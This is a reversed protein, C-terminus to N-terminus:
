KNSSAAAKSPAADSTSKGSDTKTSTQDGTAKGSTESAAGKNSNNNQSSSASAQDKRAYDTVYWGTGKLIFTSRSILRSAKGGCKPCKDVPPDSFKQWEEFEAQCDECKYEYIPM